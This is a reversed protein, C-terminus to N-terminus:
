LIDLKEDLKLLMSEIKEEDTLTVQNNRLTELIAEFMKTGRNYLPLYPDITIFMKTFMENARLKDTIGAQTLIEDGVKIM